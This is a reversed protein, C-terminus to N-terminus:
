IRANRISGGGIAIRIQKQLHKVLLKRLNSRGALANYSPKWLPRAPLRGGGSELMRAVAVLTLGTPKSNGRLKKPITKAVGSPLGLAWKGKRRLLTISRYMQHTLYYIPHSGYDKIYRESLPPWSIGKPPTGTKICNRVYSRLMILFEVSAHDCATTMVEPM